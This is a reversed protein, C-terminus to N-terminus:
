ATAEAQPAEAAGPNAYGQRQIRCRAPPANYLGCDWNGRLDYSATRRQNLRQPKLLSNINITSGMTSLGARSHKRYRRNAIRSELVANGQYPIKRCHPRPDSTTARRCIAATIRAPSGFTNELWYAAHAPTLRLSALAVASIAFIVCRVGGGGIMAHKRPELHRVDTLRVQRRHSLGAV